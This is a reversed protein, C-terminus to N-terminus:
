PSQSAYRHRTLVSLSRFRIESAYHHLVFIRISSAYSSVQKGRRINVARECLEDLSIMGDSAQQDLATWFDRELCIRRRGGNITVARTVMSTACESIEESRMRADADDIQADLEEIARRLVDAVSQHGRKTARDAMHFLQIRVDIADHLQSRDGDM